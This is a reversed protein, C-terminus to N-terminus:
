GALVHWQQFAEKPNSFALTWHSNGKGRAFMHSGLIFKGILKDRGYGAVSQFAEFSLSSIDTTEPTLRFNFCEFFSPDTQGRVTATKKVKVSRYNQNLTVKIYSDPKNPDKFQLNRGEVVTVALRNLTENYLLSVLLEGSHTTINEQVKKELDMKFLKVETETTFEKLPLFVHGIIGRRKARGSDIMTLKLLHDLLEKAPVQFIFTEDFFPNCTKKKIKTQQYRREDPLLHLRVFPDCGNVTGATRTPLNKAKLVSVLLKETANEYRVSFWLRGIHDDPFELDEELDVNCNGYLAPDIVGLGYCSFSNSRQSHTREAPVLPENGADSDDDGVLDGLSNSHRLPPLSFLIDKTLFKLCPGQNSPYVVISPGTVDGVVVKRKKLFCITLIIIIIIVLSAGAAAIPLVLGALESQNFDLLSLLKLRPVQESTQCLLNGQKELIAIRKSHSLRPCLWRTFMHTLNYIQSYEGQNQKLAADKQMQHKPRSAAQQWANAMFWPKQSSRQSRANM